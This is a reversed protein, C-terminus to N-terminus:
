AHPAARSLLTLTADNEGAILHACFVQYQNVGDDIGEKHIRQM